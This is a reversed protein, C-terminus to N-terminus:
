PNEVMAYIAVWYYGQSAVAGYTWGALMNRQHGPSELWVQLAIDAQDTGRLINEAVWDPCGNHSYDVAIEALRQVALQYLSESWQLPTVNQEALLQNQLHFAQLSRQRDSSLSPATSESVPPVTTEPESAPPATTQSESTPSTTTEPESAPPETAQSESVPPATTEPASVPPTAPTSPELPAPTLTASEQTSPPPSLSEPSLSELPASTPITAEQTISEPPETEQTIPESSASEQTPAQTVPDSITSEIAVFSTQECSATTAPPHTDPLQSTHCASLLVLCCGAAIFSRKTILM